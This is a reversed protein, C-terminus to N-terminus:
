DGARRTIQWEHRCADCRYSVVIRSQLASEVSFPVGRPLRCVPCERVDSNARGDGGAYTSPRFRDAPM